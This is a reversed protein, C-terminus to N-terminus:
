RHPPAACGHGHCDDACRRRECNAGTYGPPCACVGGACSGHAGCGGICLREACAEGAWGKDCECEGTKASCAGNGSCNNPCSPLSCRDGRFGALCSCSGTTRDCSGRGAPEGCDSVGALLSVSRPRARASRPSTPSAPACSRGCCDSPMSANSPGYGVRCVCAGQVCQGNGCCNHPCRKISCDAGQYGPECICAGNYCIGHNSCGTVCGYVFYSGSPVATAYAGVCPGYLGTLLALWGLVNAPPRAPLRAM